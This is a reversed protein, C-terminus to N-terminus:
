SDAAVTILPGFLGKNSHIKSSSEPVQGSSIAGPGLLTAQCPVQKTSARWLNQDGCWFMYKKLSEKQLTKAKSKQSIIEWNQLNLGQNSESCGWFLAAFFFSWKHNTIQPLAGWSQRLWTVWEFVKNGTHFEKPRRKAKEKRVGSLRGVLWISLVKVLLIQIRICCGKTKPLFWNQNGTNWSMKFDCDTWFQVLRSEFTCMHKWSSEALIVTRYKLTFCLFFKRFFALNNSFAYSLSPVSMLISPDGRWLMNANATSNEQLSSTNHTERRKHSKQWSTNCSDLFQGVCVHVTWCEVSLLWIHQM